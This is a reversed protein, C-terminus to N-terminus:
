VHVYNIIKYLQKTYNRISNKQIKEGTKKEKFIRMPM